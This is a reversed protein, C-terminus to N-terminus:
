AYAKKEPSLAVESQTAFYHKSEKSISTSKSFLRGRTAEFANCIRCFIIINDINTITNGQMQGQVKFEFYYKM